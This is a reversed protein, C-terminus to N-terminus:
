TCAACATWGSRRARLRRDGNSAGRTVCRTARRSCTVRTSASASGRQGRRRQDIVDALEDFSRGITDGSVPPTRSCSRVARATRSRASSSCGGILEIAEEPPAGKRQRPPRGRRGCRDRRRSRLAHTLSELSKREFEADDSALQHSLRRPHLGVRGPQRRARGPLGRLRRGHVEDPRWARPSQNFIQMTECGLEEARELARM